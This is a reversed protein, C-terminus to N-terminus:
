KDNIVLLSVATAAAAGFQWLLGAWVGRSSWHEYRKKPDGTSYGEAYKVRALVWYLGGITASIPYRYGGVLSAALFQPYTELAQQHGRQICNFIKAQESFGEAYMKPYSFRAEADKDGEAEAANQCRRRAGSVKFSLMIIALGSGVVNVLIVGAYGKPLLKGIIYKHCIILTIIM